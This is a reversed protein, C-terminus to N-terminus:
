FSFSVGTQVLRPIGPLLGRTRDVIVTRDFLNKVTVFLTAGIPLKHNITANWLTSAPILGRQGDPTGAVTGLDDGFQRSMAVAEITGTLGSPHVYGISATLMHEPAYPLRNGSVSVQQFGPVTSFRAGSFRADPLGTYATKFRLNQDSRLLPGTELQASLEVGRHLTQGANTLTAGIGGAVSAPIIQNEYDLRFFTADVRVGKAPTVRVGAELNWSLEPDLDVVGGTTNNIIDETRPPAFGRHFGAFWTINTVPTHAIGIGPIVQTLSTTGTVGRGGLALRNTREYDIHEVRVGPTVTVSGLFLRQQVFGSYADNLRRNNEVVAGARATPVDGNQQQREQREFHARAGLDTETEVRGLHYRVHLRPEIGWTSYDRLRGEIGCTTSLNTIGGCRPDSADNPRQASNSSQRWWDRHFGSGYLNTTLLLTNTIAWTHTASAGVRDVYFFDNAFPNQRPDARYEDDRLGSYTINSDESYYNARLTLLQGPRLTIVAKGNLDNLGSHIHARSGDGQKRMYDFLYGVRGSTVGYSAHGNFYDRNGVAGLLRGTPRAPPMPTLYNIVGGVTMPGYAIQASGKLVEISDFREIPPHYYSANDGYPAYALPIGDELLLVRTSRTPNTGRIGINPRLGFGEEERAHIGSVKRLAESTTFVRNSELEARGIIELSGPVRNLEARPGVISSPRVQIKESVGAIPMSLEARLSQGPALDIRSMVPAFGPAEARLVYAGPLLGAAAFAGTVDARLTVLVRDDRLLEVVAAPLGSGTEDVVRGSM